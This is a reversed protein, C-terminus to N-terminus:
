RPPSCSCWPRCSCCAQWSACPVRASGTALFAPVTYAGAKRLYPAFLVTAALMGAAWGLGIALADFGLFFVTGAYAFFGTGGVVIAAMVLGNFVPPVRRGSVFFDEVNLTRAAVAIALYLLLPAILMAPALWMQQWGLQEFLALVIVLSLFASTVIGYYAGLHPNPTRPRSHTSM